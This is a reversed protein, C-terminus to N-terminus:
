SEDFYYEQFDTIPFYGIKQYIKNSIPNHIDTFLCCFNYGSELLHQSLSATLSTCYGRNRFEKPTYVLNIIIGNKTPRTQAAMSVKKKDSEWIYLERKEIKSKILPTPDFGSPETKIELIFKGAWNILLDMESSDALRMKGQASKHPKVKELIYLKESLGERVRLQNLEAWIQSFEFAIDSKAIIGPIKCQKETLAEAGARIAETLHENCSSLILKHPPTMLGTLKLESREFISLLFPNNQYLAPNLSIQNAIGLILNNEAENKLLASEIDTLYDTIYDYFKVKM